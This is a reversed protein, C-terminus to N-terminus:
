LSTSSDEISAAAVKRLELVHVVVYGRAEVNFIWIGVGNAYVM